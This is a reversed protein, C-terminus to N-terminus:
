RVEFLRILADQYEATKEWMIHHSADFWVLEKRPAKVKEFLEAAAGAATQLDHRGLLFFLPLQFTTGEGELDLNENCEHYTLNILHGKRKMWALSDSLRYEKSLLLDRVFISTMNLRLADGHLRECHKFVILMGSLGEHGPEVRHLLGKVKPIQKFPPPGLLELDAIAERDGLERAKALTAEYNRKGLDNSMCAIGAYALYRDPHRQALIYGLGTGWSHGVLYVKPVKFRSRLYDTVALGDKIFQEKNLTADELPGEGSLGAGRQDWQVVVFHRELERQYRRFVGIHASGPGGHLFLLLPKSVDRGRILLWQRLGEIQVSTLEAISGPVVRGSGDRIPPTRRPAIARYLFFVILVAIITAISVFLIELMVDVM